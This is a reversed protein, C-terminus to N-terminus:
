GVIDPAAVLPVAQKQARVAWKQSGGALAKASPCNLGIKLGHGDM